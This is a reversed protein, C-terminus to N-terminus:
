NPKPRIFDPYCLNQGLPSPPVRLHTGGTYDSPAALGGASFEKNELFECSTFCWIVRNLSFCGELSGIVVNSGNRESCCNPFWNGGFNSNLYKKM